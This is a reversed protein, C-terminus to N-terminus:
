DDPARLLRVHRLFAAVAPSLDGRPHVVGVTWAPAHATFPRVPLEPFRAALSPPMICVGLGQRVLDAAALLDNVEFTVTRELSAARFARDVEHRVAWGPSFDVLPLGAAEALTVPGESPLGDPTPATVLVMEERSLLRTSLGRPVPTDLATVALDVAGDRLARPIDAAPAQRLRVVVGPHERHFDALATALGGHLGQMVGITIEGHLEGQALDVAARAEEAARLAARAAPLFARGAPTLSVRHTTRHFLAAGLERELARVASSVASQAVHLRRAAASFGGEEAVAVVVKMERLDM